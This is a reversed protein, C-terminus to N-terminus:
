LQLAEKFTQKHDTQVQFSDHLVRMADLPPLAILNGFFLRSVKIQFYGLIWVTVEFPEAILIQSRIRM